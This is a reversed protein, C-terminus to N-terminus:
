KIISKLRNAEREVPGSNDYEGHHRTEDGYTHKKQDLHLNVVLNIDELHCYIHFRPYGSKAMPLVFSMEGGRTSLRDERTSASTGENRQFIYGARRLLNTPNEKIKEFIIKM